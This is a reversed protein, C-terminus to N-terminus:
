ECVWQVLKDQVNFLFAPQSMQPAAVGVQPASWKLGPGAGESFSHIMEGTNSDQWFSYTGSVFAAEGFLSTSGGGTQTWDSTTSGGGILQLGGGGATGGRWGHGHTWSVDGHSSLNVVVAGEVGYTFVNGSGQLGVFSSPWVENIMAVLGDGVVLTVKRCRARRRFAKIADKLMNVEQGGLERAVLFGPLMAGIAAGGGSAGILYMPVEVIVDESYSYEGTYDGDWLGM